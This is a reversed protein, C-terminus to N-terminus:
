FRKCCVCCLHGPGGRQVIQAEFFLQPSMSCHLVGNPTGFQSTTSVKHPTRRQGTDGCPNKLAWRTCSPPGPWRHASGLVKKLHPIDNTLHSTDRECLSHMKQTSISTYKKPGHPIPFKRDRNPYRYMGWPQTKDPTVDRTGAAMFPPFIESRFMNCTFVHRLLLCREYFCGNHPSCSWGHEGHM